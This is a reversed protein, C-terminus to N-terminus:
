GGIKFLHDSHHCSHPSKRNKDHAVNKLHLTVGGNSCLSDLSVTGDANVGTVVAPWTKAPELLVLNKMGERNGSRKVVDLHTDLDRGEIPVTVTEAVMTNPDDPHPVMVGTNRRLGIKWPRDGAADKEFAHHVHPIYNVKDGKQLDTTAM